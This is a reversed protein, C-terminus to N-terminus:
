QIFWGKKTTTSCYLGGVGSTLACSVDIQLFLFSFSQTTHQAMSWLNPAWYYWTLGFTSYPLASNWHTSYSWRCWVFKMKKKHWLTLWKKSKFIRFKLKRHNQFFIGYPWFFVVHDHLILKYGVHCIGFTIDYSICGVMAYLTGGSPSIGWLSCTYSHDQFAPHSGPM